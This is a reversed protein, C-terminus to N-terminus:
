VVVPLRPLDSISIGSHNASKARWSQSKSALLAPYFVRGGFRDNIMDSVTALRELKDRRPSHAFLTRQRHAASSLNSLTVGAKTYSRGPRHIGRLIALAASILEQDSLLPEDFTTDGSFYQNAGGHYGTRICVELKRAALGASRLRAAADLVHEAVPASLEEITSLEQGFSRSAQISQAAPRATELGACPCGRLEMATMVGRMSLKKRVWLLDKKALDLATRVGCRELLRGSKPGVGWVDGIQTDALAEGIEEKGRLAVVGSPDRKAREAALKALTKTGAIGISIPIGVWRGVTRRITGAYAVPDGVSLIALNLFAEDISYVEISDSCGALIRMVRDSIEGYLEHNGSFVTVGKRVFLEKVKFYPEGMPIGMAKAENSRSIVCGDNSSLVVVPRGRLEPRFLRECSVFFNNCDCLALLSKGPREM